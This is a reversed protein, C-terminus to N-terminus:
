DFLKETRDDDIKETAELVRSQLDNIRKLQNIVDVFSEWLSMQSLISQMVEVSQDALAQAEARRDEDISGGPAVGGVATRLRSLLDEHLKGLPTIITSQLSDRAQPNALDNLTMEQLTADLAGTVQWVQRNIVQQARSLGFAEEPESLEALTKAQTKARELALAFKARQERQRMLIDYFLEEASVIQLTIWRSSGTQTGLSCADTATGRLKLTNGPVFEKGRLELEQTYEFQTLPEDAPTKPVLDALPLQKTDVRPQDEVLSVLEWDLALSALGFDDNARVFLPIRAVPTVRRGVGSARITVRPVRDKLVGIALFYPKSLLGARREALRFELALADAMTWALTYTREDVRTWGSVPEGGNLAEASRLPQDAVLKLELRTQPLFLLQSTTEGVRVTEATASGPRVASIELSRVGPRDVPEVTIPGLWDDGGTVHMAAPEALPALEYRFGSADFQAANGRRQTGNTLTYAVGVQEPPTSVPELEAEVLLPEGRGELRWVGPKDMAFDPRADIQVVTTEGRPVLLVGDEDLGLVRLYTAQPWRM